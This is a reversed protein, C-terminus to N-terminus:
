TGENAPPVTADGNADAAKDQGVVKTSLAKGCEKIQSRCYNFLLLVQLICSLVVIVVPSSTSEPSCTHATRVMAVISYLLTIGFGVGWGPAIHIYAREEGFDPNQSMTWVSYVGVVGQVLLLVALIMSANCLQTNGVQGSGSMNYLLHLQRKAYDKQNNM